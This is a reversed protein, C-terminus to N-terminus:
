AGIAKYGRIEWWTSETHESNTWDIVMSSTTLSYCSCRSDNGHSDGIVVGGVVSYSKDAMQILFDVQVGGSGPIAAVGGQECWGSNWIRYWSSGNKYSEVIYDINQPANGFDIDLKNSIAQQFEATQAVSAPVSASYVFVWPYLTTHAPTVHQSRGYIPNDDSAMGTTDPTYETLHRASYGAGSWAYPRIYSHKHDPLGELSQTIGDTTNAMKVYNALLPLRITKNTTNIVYYPCEGYKNIATTYDAASIQLETHTNVWNYFQPYISDANYIVEGTFLPLGGPNDTAYPSQSYYVEGLNRTGGTYISEVGIAKRPIFWRAEITVGAEIPLNFTITQKDASITYADQLLITNGVNLLLFDKNTVPYNLTISTTQEAANYFKQSYSILANDVFWWWYNFPYVFINGTEDVEGLAVCPSVEWGNLTLVYNKEDSISYFRTGIPLGTTDLPLSESGTQKHTDSFIYGDDDVYIYAPTGSTITIQVPTTAEISSNIPTGFEDFGNAVSALFNGVSLTTGSLSMVTGTSMIVINRLAGGSGDGGGAEMIKWTGAANQNDLLIVSCMRSINIRRLLTNEADKVDIRGNSSTRNYLSVTWGLPLTTADPLIVAHDVGVYYSIHKESFKNLTEDALLSRKSLGENVRLGATIISNAQLAGKIEM